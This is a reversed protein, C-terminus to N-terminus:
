QEPKAKNPKPVKLKDPAFRGGISLGGTIPQYLEIAIQKFPLPKEKSPPGSLTVSAIALIPGSDDPVDALPKRQRKANPFVKKMVEQHADSYYWKLAAKKDEFWAFVVLKGSETKATEVGLCGPSAKLAGLLDPFGQGKDAAPCAGTWGGLILLALTSAGLLPNRM